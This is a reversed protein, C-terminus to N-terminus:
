KSLNEVRKRAAILNNTRANGDRAIAEEIRALEAKALELKSKPGEGQKPANMRVAAAIVDRRRSKDKDPPEVPATSEDPM